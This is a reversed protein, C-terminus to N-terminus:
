MDVRHSIIINLFYIGKRFVIIWKKNCSSSFVATEYLGNKKTRAKTTIAQYTKCRVLKWIYEKAVQIINNYVDFGFLLFDTHNITQKRDQVRLFSCLCNSIAYRTEWEDRVVVTFHCSKKKETSMCAVIKIVCVRVRSKYWPSYCHLFFFFTANLFFFFIIQLRFVCVCNYSVNM